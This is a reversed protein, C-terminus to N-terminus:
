QQLWGSFSNFEFSPPPVDDGSEEEIGDNSVEGAFNVLNDVLNSSEVGGVFNTGKPFHALLDEPSISNTVDPENYADTPEDVNADTKDTTINKQVAAAPKIDDEAGPLVDPLTFAEFSLDNSNEAQEFSDFISGTSAAFSDDFADTESEVHEIQSTSESSIDDGSLSPHNDFIVETDSSEEIDMKETNANTSIRVSNNALMGNELASVRAELKSLSVNEASENIVRLLATELLFESDPVKAIVGYVESFHKSLRLVQQQEVSESYIRLRNKYSETNVISDISAGNLLFLTDTTASIMNKLMLQLNRGKSVSDRVSAIAKTPNGDNVAELIDFIADDPTVGLTDAVVQVTLSDSDFFPEMISLADRMGGESATAILRLADIDYAKRHENCVSILYELITEFSITEFMFRRSRSVITKPVKHEETTCMIFIVGKPPEEIIKLLANWAGQSFMHVEDLIFVKYPSSGLYQAKEIINRVDEVKNNSAADLEVVDMSTGNLINRCNECEGCPEVGGKECNLTRAVIRAVTTKGTGRPGNFLMANPIKKSLFMGKLQAKITDQGQVQTLTKPRLDNYLSM